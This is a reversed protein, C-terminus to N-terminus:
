RRRMSEANPRRPTRTYSTRGFLFGFVLVALAECIFGLRIGSLERIALADSSFRTSIASCSNEPQDFYAVEQRLLCEFAKSRM